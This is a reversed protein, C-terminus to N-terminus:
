ERTRSEGAAKEAWLRHHTRAWEKSVHGQIMAKTSGPVMFVGMYVHIIFAGITILAACEHLIIALSRIFALQFPVYEPVWMVLGSVLLLIAGFLMIWYFQKQGANFKGQPPLLEDKNEVYYKVDKTWRRDEQTFALDRRWLHHMWAIAAVFLLGMWPHWYRASAGGGVVAALWYLYPTYFALGTMMCYVYTLGAAWHCLRERYTYRIIEDSALDSHRAALPPSSM